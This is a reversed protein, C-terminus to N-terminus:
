LAQSLLIAALLGVIVLLRSPPPTLSSKFRQLSDGEAEDDPDAEGVAIRAAFARELAETVGRVYRTAFYHCGWAPRLRPYIRRVAQPLMSPVNISPPPERSLLLAGRYARLSPVLDVQEPRADTRRRADAGASSGDAPAKAATVDRDESHM